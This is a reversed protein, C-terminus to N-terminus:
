NNNKNEYERGESIYEELIDALERDNGINRVFLFKSLIEYPMKREGYEYNRYARLTVGLMDAMQQQTYGKGKRFEKLQSFKRMNIM